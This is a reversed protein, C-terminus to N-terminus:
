EPDCLRIAEVRMYEDDLPVVGEMGSLGRVKIFGHEVGLIRVRREFVSKTKRLITLVVEQGVLGKATSEM